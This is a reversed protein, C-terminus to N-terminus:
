GSGSARASRCLEGCVTAAPACWASRDSGGCFSLRRSEWLQTMPLIWCSAYCRTRMPSLRALNRRGALAVDAKPESAAVSSDAVATQAEPVLTALEGMPLAWYIM